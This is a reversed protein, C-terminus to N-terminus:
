NPRDIRFYFDQWESGYPYQANMVDGVFSSKALAEQAANNFYSSPRLTTSSSKSHGDCWAVNAKQSHVGYITPAGGASPLRLQVTSQLGVTPVSIVDAADAILITDAPSAMASLSPSGASGFAIINPNAAYGLNYSSVAGGDLSRKTSSPCGTIAQNKMYPYLLGNAPDIQWGAAANTFDIKMAGYWYPIIFATPTNIFAGQAVPARDDYDGAYMITGLGVQKTNSLCATKKAAAKAQAFVPFLIAALIAIIAIVVLLEILTFGRGLPRVSSKPLHM